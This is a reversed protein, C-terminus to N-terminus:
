CSSQEVAKKSKQAKFNAYTTTWRYRIRIGYLAGGKKTIHKIRYAPVYRATYSVKALTLSLNAILCM